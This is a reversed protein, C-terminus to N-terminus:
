QEPSEAEWEDPDINYGFPFDTPSSHVSSRVNLANLATESFWTKKPSGSLSVGQRASLSVARPPSLSIPQPNGNLVRYTAARKRTKVYKQVLLLFGQREARRRYRSVATHHCGLLDAIREIPLAIAQDPFASQLRLSLSLFKSYRSVHNERAVEIWARELPDPGGRPYRCVSTIIRLVEEEQLPPQCDRSNICLLEARIGEENWGKGRLEGAIRTLANNRQGAQIPRWARSFTAKRGQHTNMSLRDGAPASILNLLWPPALSIQRMPESWWYSEGDPHVSPPVIVYGGEGRIDLNKGLHKSSVSNRVRQDQPWRLWIHEGNPTKSTLTSPIPGYQRQLSQLSENGIIGDVDLVFVGSGSGTACGWNCDPYTEAWRRIQYLDSTAKEPWGALLPQKSRPRCPHLRFGLQALKELHEMNPGQTNRLAMSM